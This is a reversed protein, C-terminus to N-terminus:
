WAACPIGRCFAIIHRPQVVFKLVFKLGFGVNSCVQACIASSHLRILKYQLYSHSQLHCDGLNSHLCSNLHCDVLFICSSLQICTLEPLYMFDIVIRICIDLKCQLCSILHGDGLKSQLLSHLHCDGFSSQPCSSMTGDGLKSERVFECFFERSSEHGLCRLVQCFIGRNSGRDFGCFLVEGVLVM